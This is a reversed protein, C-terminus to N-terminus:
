AWFRRSDRSELAATAVLLIVLCFMLRPVRAHAGGIGAALLGVLWSAGVVPVALSVDSIRVIFARVFVLYFVIAFLFGFAGLDVLIQSYLVDLFGVRPNEPSAFWGYGFIPQQVWLSIAEKTLNFRAELGGFFSPNLALEGDTLIFPLYRNLLWPRTVLLVPILLSATGVVAAVLTPVPLRDRLLVVGVTGGVLLTIIGSRSGASLVGVLCVTGALFSLRARVPGERVWLAGNLLGLLAPLALFVSMTNPNRWLVTARAYTGSATINQVVAVAAILTGGALLVTLMRDWDVATSFSQALVLLGAIEFWKLTWLVNALSSVPERIVAVLVTALIWGGLLCFWVTVEPISLKLRWDGTQIRQALFVGGLALVVFDSANVSAYESGVGSLPLQLSFLISVLFLAFL